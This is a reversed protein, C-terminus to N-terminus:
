FSQKPTYSQGIDEFIIVTRERGNSMNKEEKLSKGKVSVFSSM